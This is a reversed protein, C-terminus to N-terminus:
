TELCMKLENYIFMTIQENATYVVRCRITVFRWWVDIGGARWCVFRWMIPLEREEISMKSSVFQKFVPLFM